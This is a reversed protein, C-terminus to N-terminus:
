FPLNATRKNGSSKGKPQEGEEDKNELYVINDAVIDFTKLQGKEEHEYVGTAIRGEVLLKSGKRQYEVLNKAREGWAIVNLFDVRENYGNVAIGFRVYPQDGEKTKAIQLDLDHTIRGVLTVKNFGMAM